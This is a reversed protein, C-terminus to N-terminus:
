PLDKRDVVFQSTPPICPQSALSHWSAALSFGEGLRRMTKGHLEHSRVVAFREVTHVWNRCVLGTDVWKKFRELLLATAKKKEM